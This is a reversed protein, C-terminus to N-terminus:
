TLSYERKLQFVRHLSQCALTKQKSSHQISSYITEFASEIDPSKHCILAIDVEADLIHHIADEITFYKQISGMDLDDTMVLGQYGMQDRLIVKAIRRSLSAPLNQDLQVYRIHSLMIGAVQKSVAARFPLLDTVDMDTISADLFPTDIHSDLVTRGIGPFHKAVSLIGGTELGIMYFLSKRSVAILDEGFSRRNIVPNFPNNNVDVVPAFNIHVGLRKMQRAIQGGMDFILRDDEIAGLMMQSPYRITSDLRMALGNEADLGILLPTSALSQYHNTLVAQRHPAGQFFVLGGIKYDRVLRAVEEENRRNNNSYAAVMILQAIREEMTLTDMVSDVWSQPSQLFEPDAKVDTLHLVEDNLRDALTFRTFMIMIILLGVISVSKILYRDM